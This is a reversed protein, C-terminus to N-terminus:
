KTPWPLPLDIESVQAIVEKIYIESTQPSTHALRTQIQEIPLKTRAADTAGLARLDRFQIREEPPSDKGIGLRDRARDWMSFLGNKSYETGKRTPFVFGTILPKGHVKYEKKIARARQIVDWIAPTILIDVSKGSTKLTKSPKLRIYGGIEGDIQSEKLTRVDIARAWLLYAADVLCAFMPGSATPLAKGTDSRVKSIMGAQRIAQVQEHTPLILRRTTEYDELEIQDIPNDERLGLESIVFKFLKRALATYKQATNPHASFNQRLFQAWSKTTVQRASFDAFAEGITDLYRGYTAKTEDTYRNLKHKKFEACVYRMSEVNLADDQLLNGLALLMAAEGEAIKALPIWRKIKGDKPDLMPEAPVFFYAGHKQYVRRPLGKGTKRSRNM